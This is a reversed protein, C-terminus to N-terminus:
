LLNSELVIWVVIRSREIMAGFGGGFGFGNCSMKAGQLKLILYM